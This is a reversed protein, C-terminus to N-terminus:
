FMKMLMVRVLDDSADTLGIAFATSLMLGNPLHMMIGPQFYHEQRWPVIGMKKNDGLAGLFEFTLTSVVLGKKHNKKTLKMGCKSCEGPKDSVVDPHMPCSYIDGDHESHSNLKYMAGVAYGFPTAGTRTDTENIWNLAINWNGINQSLIFRSELIKERENESEPEVAYPPVLWGSTEMKFRTEPDLDEFEFYITPNLFVEKKFLRYRTEFRFGTFKSIGTGFEQFVEVMLEIELQSTPNFGIKPMQSLFNRPGEERDIKSPSTHDIMLMFETEGKEVEHGYTTVYGEQATCIASFLMFAAIGAVNQILYKKRKM